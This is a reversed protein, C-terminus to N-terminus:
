QTNFTWDKINRLIFADGLHTFTFTWLQKKQLTFHVTINKNIEPIEPFRVIRNQNLQSAIIFCDLNPPAVRVGGLISLILKAWVLLCVFLTRCRSVPRGARDRIM